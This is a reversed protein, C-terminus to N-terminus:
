PAPTENYYFTVTFFARNDPYEEPLPQTPNSTLLANFASNNFADVDSPGIVTLDTIQGDKHVNFTIVVHGRMFYAANPIDWNRKIQAIFRRIWPGFEVGKTDFQITPGFPSAGGQPNDLTQGQVYRQLNRLADGLSGGAAGDRGQSANPSPPAAPRGQDYALVDPSSPKAAASQGSSSPSSAQQDPGHGAARMAEESSEVRESTNGRVYPLSNAPNPPREVTRAARDRDSLEARPPAELAPTDLRPQVFVFRADRRAREAELQREIAEQQARQMAQFIALRPVYLLLALAVVHLVVSLLIGERRSIAPEVSPTEPRYDEFDFYM